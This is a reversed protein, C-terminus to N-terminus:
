VKGQLREVLSQAAREHAQLQLKFDNNKAHHAEVRTEEIDKTLLLKLLDAEENNLDLRM